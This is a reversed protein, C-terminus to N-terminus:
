SPKVNALPLTTSPTSCCPSLRQNASSYSNSSASPPSGAGGASGPMLGSFIMFRSRPGEPVARTVTGPSGAESLGCSSLASNSYASGLPSISVVEVRTGSHGERTMRPM